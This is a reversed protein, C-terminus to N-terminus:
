PRLVLAVPGSLGATAAATADDETVALTVADGDVRVVEASTAVPREWTPAAVDVVDGPRAPTPLDGTRVVVAVRGPRLARATASRRRPTLMSAGIPTGARLDIAAVADRPLSRLADTPALAAPVRLLTVDDPRIRTGAGIGSRVVTVSREASWAARAADAASLSQQLITAVVVVLVWGTVQRRLARRRGPSGFGATRISRPLHLWGPRVLPGM